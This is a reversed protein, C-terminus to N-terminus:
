ETRNGDCVVAKVNAGAQKLNSLLMNTQEFLFDAGLQRVPLMKCLFKTSGFMCVVMYSLVTNALLDPNNIAQGFIEGGHYQLMSKVYVEDLLLICTRQKDPLNSFIRTYFAIDDFRRSASTMRTLTSISSLQLDKSLRHYSTRSLAFYSFARVIISNSYKKEGVQKVGMSQAQEHLVEEKWTPPSSHLFRVAEEVQSWQTFQVVRNRSLSTVSCRIGSRYAQFHMNHNIQLMYKFIGTGELMNQSQLWTERDTTSIKLPCGFDYLLIQTKFIDYSCIKDKENFLNMEDPLQCREEASSRETPRSPPIQTARLSPKM